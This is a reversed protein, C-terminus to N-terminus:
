SRSLVVFRADPCKPALTIHAHTCFNDIKRQKHQSNDISTKGTPKGYEIVRHIVTSLYTDANIWVYMQLPTYIYNRELPGQAPLAEM